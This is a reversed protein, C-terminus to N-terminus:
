TLPIFRVSETQKIEVIRRLADSHEFDADALLSRTKATIGFTMKTTLYETSVEGFIADFKSVNNASVSYGNSTTYEVTGAKTVIRREDVAKCHEAFFAKYQKLEENAAEVQKTLECARSIAERIQKESAKGPKVLLTFVPSPAEAKIKKVAAEPM